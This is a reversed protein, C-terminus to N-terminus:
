RQYASNWRLVDEEALSLSDVDLESMKMQYNGQSEFTPTFGTALISILLGLVWSVSIAPHRVVFDKGTKVVLQGFRDAGGIVIAGRPRQGVNRRASSM